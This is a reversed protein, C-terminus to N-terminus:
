HWLQPGVTQYSSGARCAGEVPLSHSFDDLGALLLRSKTEVPLKKLALSPAADFIVSNPLSTSM